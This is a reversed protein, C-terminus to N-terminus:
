RVQQELTLAPFRDVVVDITSSEILQKRHKYTRTMREGIIILNPSSSIMENQMVSIHEDITGSDEVSVDEM